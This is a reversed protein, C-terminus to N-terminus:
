ILPKDPTRALKRKNLLASHVADRRPQGVTSDSTYIGTALM